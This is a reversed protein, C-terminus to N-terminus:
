QSECLCCILLPKFSQCALFIGILSWSVNPAKKLWEQKLVEGKHPSPASEPLPCIVYQSSHFWTLSSGWPKKELVQPDTGEKLLATNTVSHLLVKSECRARAKDGRDGARAGVLTIVAMIGQPPVQSMSMESWPRGGFGKPMCLSYLFVCFVLFSKVRGFDIYIPTETLKMSFSFTLCFSISFLLVLSFLFFFFFFFGLFCLFNVM